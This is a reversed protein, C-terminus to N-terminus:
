DNYINGSKVISYECENIFDRLLEGDSTEFCGGNILVYIEGHCSSGDMIKLKDGKYIRDQNSDEFGSYQCASGQEIEIINCGHSSTKDKVVICDQNNSKKAFGGYIWLSGNIPKIARGKFETIIEM